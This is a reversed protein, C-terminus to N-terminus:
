KNFMQWDIVSFLFIYVFFPLLIITNRYNQVYALITRWSDPLWDVHLRFVPGRRQCVVRAIGEIPRRQRSAAGWIGGIGDGSSRARPTGDQPRHRINLIGCSERTHQVRLQNIGARGNVLHRRMPGGFYFTRLLFSNFKFRACSCETSRRPCCRNSCMKISQMKAHAYGRAQTLAHTSQHHHRTSNSTHHATRAHLLLLMLKNIYAAYKVVCVRVTCAKRTFETCIALSERHRRTLWRTLNRIYVCVSVLM